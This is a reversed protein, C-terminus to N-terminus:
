GPPIDEKQNKLEEERKKEVLESKIGKLYTPVQLWFTSSPCSREKLIKAFGLSLYSPIRGLRMKCFCRMAVFRMSRMIVLFGITASFPFDGSIGLLTLFTLPPM